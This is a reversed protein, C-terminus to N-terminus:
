LSGVLNLASFPWDIKWNVHRLLFNLKGALNSVALLYFFISEGGPKTTPCITELFKRLTLNPLSTQSEYLHPPGCRREYPTRCTPPILRLQGKEYISDQDHIPFTSHSSAEGAAAFLRPRRITYHMSVSFESVRNQLDRVASSWCGSQSKLDRTGRRGHKVRPCSHSSTRSFNKQRLKQGLKYPQVPGYSNPCTSFTKGGKTSTNKFGKRGGCAIPLNKLLLLM